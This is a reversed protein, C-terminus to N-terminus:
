LNIAITFYRHNNRHCTIATELFVMALLESSREHVRHLKVFLTSKICWHLHKLNKFQKVARIFHDSLLIVRM